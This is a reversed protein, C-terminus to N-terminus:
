GVLGALRGIRPDDPGALESVLEVVKSIQVSGAEVMAELDAWDRTRDFMAKFTALEIPGLVPIHTGSFPVMRSNKSAQEHLAVYDFFLDVPHEGWWLRVQGDRPLNGLKNDRDVVESPLAALAVEPTSAPVFINLDIDSTGRPDLTCYALAIAGGFAHPIQQGSLSEHLAVIKDALTM